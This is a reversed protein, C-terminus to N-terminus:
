KQIDQMLSTTTSSVQNVQAPSDSLRQTQDLDLVQQQQQQQHHHHHHYGTTVQISLQQQQQLHPAPGGYRDAAIHERQQTQQVPGGCVAGVGAVSTESCNQRLPLATIM